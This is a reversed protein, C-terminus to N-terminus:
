WGAARGYRGGGEPRLEGVGREDDEIALERGVREVVLEPIRGALPM